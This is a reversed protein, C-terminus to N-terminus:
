RLLSDLRDIIEVWDADEIYAQEIFGAQAPNWFDAEWLRKEMPLPRHRIIFADISAPDNPLGLQKFLEPLDHIPPQM